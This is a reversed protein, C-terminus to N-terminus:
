DGDSETSGRYEIDGDHLADDVAAALRALDVPKKLWGVMGQAKLEPVEEGLPYGTMLVVKVQPGHELLHKLLARGGMEPMVLDSLVLPIEGAREALIDLAERGNSAELTVYNMSALSSVLAERVMEDDEVVLLLEGQGMMVPQEDIPVPVQEVLPMAPLYLAFTTGEGVRTQVEVYGMHQKVIGYVQALGLGSGEGPGKTTFFPEFIHPLVDAPIGTGDDAVTVLVWEGAEAGIENGDSLVVRELGIKLKGGGVTLMADRANVALNMIAQQIRTPDASVVYEAPRGVMRLEIQINEPLTRELMKVQEKMFPALDMPQRELISRRGFDLIQEILETARRAQAEMTELRERLKEPLAPTRLGLQAYLIIVAMINNFDHAIGAALQGVAALREQQQVRQQIDRERTVDRMVMVWGEDEQGPAIPQTVVEFSRVSPDSVELAHWLGDPPELLLNELAQGGLQKVPEGKGVSALVSLYEEAVPNALVVHCEPDLLMVGEPVADITQQMRRAQEQLRILLGHREREAEQKEVARQITVLLHEVEYPKQVYSYAGLNVAEIASSQSAYGTLVICESIPSLQKIQKMVDLGSMDELRLDLLVVAPPKRKVIELAERGTGASDSLFGKLAFIDSLTKRLNPDDDVILIQVQNM